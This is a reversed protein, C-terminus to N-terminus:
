QFPRWTYPRIPTVNQNVAGPFRPYISALFECTIGSNRRYCVSTGVFLAHCLSPVGGIKM